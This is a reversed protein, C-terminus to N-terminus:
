GEEEVRERERAVVDCARVVFVGPALGDHCRLTLVQGRRGAKRGDLARTDTRHPWAVAILEGVLHAYPGNVVYVRM